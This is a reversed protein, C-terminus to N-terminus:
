IAPHREETKIKELKVSSKEECKHSSFSFQTSCSAGCKECKVPNTAFMIKDNERHRMTHEQYNRYDKPMYNLCNSTEHCEYQLKNPNHSWATNTSNHRRPDDCIANEHKDAQHAQRKNDNKFLSSCYACRYYGFVHVQQQHQDLQSKYKFERNCGIEPNIDPMLYKEDTKGVECRYNTANGSM